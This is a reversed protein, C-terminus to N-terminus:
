WSVSAKPIDVWAEDAPFGRPPKEVQKTFKLFATLACIFADFAHADAIMTRVDQAYIFAIDREILQKLIAERIGEGEVAHKHFRLYSKQVGLSRGIRWLSVKPMVEICPLDLRRSVFHARATLPAANAGLAHSPHFVEEMETSLYFEVCRETYPTCFRKPKKNENFKRYAKKLWVMEPEECDDYGPCKLRCRMCKPLQLPADFAVIEVPNPVEQILKHLQADASIEDVAMIKHHIEKLFIKKQNPFYEVIALSTKKTKGGGLSM